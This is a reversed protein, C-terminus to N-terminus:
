NWSLADWTNTTDGTGSAWLLAGAAGGLPVPLSVIATATATVADADTVTLQVTFQGRNTYTVPGVPNTAAAANPTVGGGGFADLAWDYRYPAKGNTAAGTFTVTGGLTTVGDAPNMQITAQLTGTSKATTPSSSCGVLLMAAAALVLVLPGPGGRACVSPPRGIRIRM